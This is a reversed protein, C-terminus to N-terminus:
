IRSGLGKDRSALGRYTPQHSPRQAGAGTPSRIKKAPSAVCTPMLGHMCPAISVPMLAAACTSAHMVGGGRLRMHLRAYHQNCMRGSTSAASAALEACM